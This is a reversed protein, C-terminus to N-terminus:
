WVNEQKQTNHLHWYRISINQLKKQFGSEKLISYLIEKRFIEPPFRKKARRNQILKWTNKKIWLYRGEQKELLIFAAMGPEPQKLVDGIEYESSYEDNKKMIRIKGM